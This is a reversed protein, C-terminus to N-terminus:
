FLQGRRSPDRDEETLRDATEAITSWAAVLGNFLGADETRKSNDADRYLQHALDRVSGLQFADALTAIMNQFRAAETYGKHEALYALHLTVAWAPPLTAGSIAQAAALDEPRILRVKGGGSSIVGLKDLQALNATHGNAMNDADGFAGAKWGFQQYWDICWNTNADYAGADQRIITNLEQRILDLATGIRMPEGTPELVQAYSSFIQMGPGISAQPLDVPLINSAKLEEIAPPLAHTLEELFEQRDITRQSAPRPRCILIVYTSLANAGQGIMRTGSTAEVPWTRVIQLGANQVAQLLSEWGSSVIGDVTEEESKHAYAVVIPLDPRGAKRLSSFVETFGDIFYKRAVNKDGGHRAPNAVLEAKKPTSRTGFLDRHVFRLARRIWLYFYDSLDAYNIQGFYPPDTVILASGEPVLDGAVRADCQVVSGPAAEASLAAVVEIVSDVQATWSGVSHGFPDTEAFDWLMPVAQTGFAPEAKSPGARLRWRVLASNSQALKGICLGLMSTIARVQEPSGGDAEILKPLNAIEDAFATLTALQRPTYVDIQRTLGYLGTSFNKTNSGFEIEDLDIPLTAEVESAPIEDPALFIRGQSADDVCVAMLQLGLEGAGGAARLQKEGFVTRCSPCEFRARGTTKTARSSKNAGRHVVFRVHDGEVLPELTAERGPQKSLWESGYLPVTLSCAPNPCPVTRAWLYAVLRGQPPMPYLQGLNEEVALQVVQGYHQLDRSFGSYPGATSKFSERLGLVEDGLGYSVSAASAMPPLLEGLVRTILAAVPNLDSSVAPLGLRLAEVITSGGGAFPDLVTPLTLNDKAILERARSLVEDGPAKGDSPVLEKVFDQLKAREDEDEPDNVLASFILARLAPTPM